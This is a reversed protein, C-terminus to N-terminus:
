RGIASTTPRIAKAQPVGAVPQPDLVGHRMIRLRGARETILVNGDPLFVLSWPNALQRTMVVVRITQHEATEFVFPGEGLPPRPIGLPQPRADPPTAQRTGSATPQQASPLAASALAFALVISGLLWRTM